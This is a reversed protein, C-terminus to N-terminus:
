GEWSRTFGEGFLESLAPHANPLTVDALCQLLLSTQLFAIAELAVELKGKSSPGVARADLLSVGGCCQSALIAMGARLCQLDGHVVEGQGQWVSPTAGTWTRQLARQIMGVTQKRTSFVTRSMALCSHAAARPTYAYAGSSAATGAPTRMEGAAGMSSASTGEGPSQMKLHQRQGSHEHPRKRCPLNALVEDLLYEFSTTIIIRFPHLEHAGLAESADNFQEPTVFISAGSSHESSHGHQHLSEQCALTHQLERCTNAGRQLFLCVVNM